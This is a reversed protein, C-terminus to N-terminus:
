LSFFTGQSTLPGFGPMSRKRSYRKSGYSRCVRIGRRNVGWAKCRKRRHTRKSKGRYSACRRAYGQGKVHVRKYRKCRMGRRKRRRRYAMTVDGDM